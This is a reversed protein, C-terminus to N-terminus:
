YIACLPGVLQINTFPVPGFVINLVHFSANWLRLTGALFSIVNLEFDACVLENLSILEKCLLLVWLCKLYLFKMVIWHKSLQSIQSIARVAYAEFM